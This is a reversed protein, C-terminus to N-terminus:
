CKRIYRRNQNCSEPGHERLVRQEPALHPGVQEAHAPLGQQAVEDVALHRGDRELGGPAAARRAGSQRGSGQEPAVVLHGEGGRDRDTYMM